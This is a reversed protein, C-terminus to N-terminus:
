DSGVGSPMMPRANLYLCNVYFDLTGITDKSYMIHIYRIIMLRLLNLYNLKSPNKNALKVFIEIYLFIDSFLIDAFPFILRNWEDRIYLLNKVAFKGFRKQHIVLFCWHISM